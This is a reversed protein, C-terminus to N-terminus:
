NRPKIAMETSLRGGTMVMEGLRQGRNNALALPPYLNIDRVRFVNQERQAPTQGTAPNFEFSYNFGVTDKNVVIANNFGLPGEINDLGIMSNDIPDSIQITSGGGKLLNYRGVISLRNGNPGIENNPILSFNMDGLLKLKLGFLIDKDSNFPNNIGASPNSPNVYTPFFGGAIEASMVMLLNPLDVNVQGGELGFTGYGRLLMDINRLGIYMNNAADVVMISTTKTDDTSKGQVSLALAFGLRDSASTIPVATVQQSSNLTYYSGTYTTTYLAINSNLNYFPLGLGWQNTLGATPSIINATDAMNHSSTFRGRRSIAQFDAGRIAVVVSRPNGEAATRQHIQQIYDDAKTLYENTKGGFRSSNLVQNAPMQLHQTKALNIYVNGSDFYARENSNSILPSLESFEFGFTNTGAGGIELKTSKNNDGFLMADGDRTFEGRLRLAIGTSGMVTKNNGLTNNPVTNATGSANSAYGLVSNAAAFTSADTGRIQLFSNVMRGSAGVRILGKAGTSSLSANDMAGTKTMFELNLGAGTAKATGGTSVMNGNSDVNLYYTSTSAGNAGAVQESDPLATRTFDVYGYQLQQAPTLSGTKPAKVTTGGTNTNLVFGEVDDVYVVGKGYFNFNSNKFILQNYTTAAPAVPLGTFINVNKVGIGLEAQANKNFLGDTTILSIDIPSGTQIALRGNISECTAGECIEFNDVSITSPQSTIKLDIGTQGDANAGVNIKYETGLEYTPSYNTNKRIKVGKASAKLAIEANGATGAKDEWYLEDIDINGYQTNISIGDQGDIQRLDHDAMAQLAYTAQNLCLISGALATLAFYRMDLNRKTM